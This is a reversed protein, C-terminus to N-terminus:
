VPHSEDVTDVEEPAFPAFFDPQDAELYWRAISVTVFSSTKSASCWTSSGSSPISTTSRPRTYSTSTSPGLTLTRCVSVEIPQGTPGIIWSSMWRTAESSGPTSSTSTSSVNSGGHVGSLIDSSALNM